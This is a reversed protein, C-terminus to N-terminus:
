EWDVIGSKLSYYATHIEVKKEKVLKQIIESQLLRDKMKQVNIKIACPLPDKPCTKKAEVVSPQIQKAISPIDGAEDHFVAQVAGCNEHGLILIVPAHLHEVAYDVSEQEFSGIVNGAVRVVFLDGLTQDFIIEPDVRSDSCGVIVAFPTQKSYLSERQKADQSRQQPTNQVYRQNGTKLKQFAELPSIESFLAITCILFLLCFSKRM